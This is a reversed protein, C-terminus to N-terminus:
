QKAELRDGSLVANYITKYAAEGADTDFRRMRLLLKLKLGYYLLYEKSFGDMPRLDELMDLRYQNLHKEAQMPDNMEMAAAAARVHEPPLEEDQTDFTKKMRDARVKALALRLTRERENWADIFACGTPTGRRPPAVTLQALEDLAKKGLFRACLEKFREETIPLPAHESVGDLSPLQSILYYDAM